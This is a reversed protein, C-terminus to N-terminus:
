AGRPGTQRINLFTEIELRLSLLEIAMVDRQCELPASAHLGLGRVQKAHAEPREAVVGLFEIQPSYARAADRPFQPPPLGLGPPRQLSSSPSLRARKAASRHPSSCNTNAEECVM